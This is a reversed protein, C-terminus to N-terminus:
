YLSSSLDMLRFAIFDDLLCLPFFLLVVFLIQISILVDDRNLLPSHKSLFARPTLYFLSFAFIM